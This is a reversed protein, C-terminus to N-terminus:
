FVEFYKFDLLFMGYNVSVDTLNSAPSEISAYHVGSHVDHYIRIPIRGCFFELHKLKFLSTPATCDMSKDNQSVDLDIISNLIMILFLGDSTSPLVSLM